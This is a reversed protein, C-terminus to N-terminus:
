ATALVAYNLLGIVFALQYSSAVQPLFALAGFAAVILIYPLPSRSTM